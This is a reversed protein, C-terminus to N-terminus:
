ESGRNPFVTAAKTPAPKSRPKHAKPTPPPQDALYTELTQIREITYQLVAEMAKFQADNRDINEQLSVIKTKLADLALTDSPPNSVALAKQAGWARIWGTAPSGMYYDGSVAMLFAIAVVSAYRWFWAPASTLLQTPLSALSPPTTLTDPM